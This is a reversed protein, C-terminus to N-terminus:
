DYLPEKFVLKNEADGYTNHTINIDYCKDVLFLLM